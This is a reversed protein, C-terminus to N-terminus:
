SAPFLEMLRRHRAIRAPDTETEYLQVLEPDSLQSYFRRLLPETVTGDHIGAMDDAFRQEAESPWPKGREVGYHSQSGTM